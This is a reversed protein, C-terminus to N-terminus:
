VRRLDFAIMEFLLNWFKLASSWFHIRVFIAVAITLSASNQRRLFIGPNGPKGSNGSKSSPDNAILSSTYTM